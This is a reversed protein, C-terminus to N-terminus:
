PEAWGPVARRGTLRAAARREEAAGPCAGRRIGGAPRPGGPPMRLALEDVLQDVLPPGAAPGYATALAVARNLGVNRSM